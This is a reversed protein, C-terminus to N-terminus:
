VQAPNESKETKHNEVHNGIQACNASEQRSVPVLKKEVYSAKLREHDEKVKLQSSLRFRTLWRLIRLIASIISFM